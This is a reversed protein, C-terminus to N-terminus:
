ARFDHGCKSCETDPWPKGAFSFPGVNPGIAYPSKGCKPCAIALAFLLQLGVGTGVLAMCIEFVNPNATFFGLFAGGIVLVIPLSLVLGYLRVRVM